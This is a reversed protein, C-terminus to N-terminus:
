APTPSPKPPQLTLHRGPLRINHATAALLLEINAGELGRLNVKLSASLLLERLGQRRKLFALVREVVARHRRLGGSPPGGAPAARKKGCRGKSLKRAPSNSAADRLQTAAASRREQVPSASGVATSAGQPGRPIITPETTKLMSPQRSCCSGPHTSVSPPPPNARRKERRDRGEGDPPLAPSLPRAVTRSCVPLPIGDTDAM